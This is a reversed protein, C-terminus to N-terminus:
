MIYPFLLLEDRIEVAYKHIGSYKRTQESAVISADQEMCATRLIMLRGDSARAPITKSTYIFYEFPQRLLLAVCGCSHASGCVHCVYNVGAHM